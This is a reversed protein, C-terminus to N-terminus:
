SRCFYPRFAFYVQFFFNDRIDDREGQYLKIEIQTQNDESTTFYQKSSCPIISDKNLLKCMLNNITEIGISLPLSETLILCNGGQLKRNLCTAGLSVGIDKLNLTYSNLHDNIKLTHDKIEKNYYSKLLQKIWPNYCSGGILLVTDIDDIKILNEHCKNLLNIIREKFITDLINFYEKINLIIQFDYYREVISFNSDVHKDYLWGLKIKIKEIIFKYSENKSEILEKFHPYKNDIYNGLEIDIDIGGLNNDGVNVDIQSILENDICNCTVIAIDLTGAGFDFVLLRQLIDEQNDIPVINTNFYHIYSLAASCPEYLLRICEINIQSCYSLIKNKQGENFNAPITIIVNFDTGITSIILSKLKNLLLCMLNSLYYKTEDIIIILDDETDELFWNNFKAIKIADNNNASLGILRKLNSIIPIDYINNKSIENGVLVGNNLIGIISSIKYNNDEDTIIFPRGINDQYTICCKDTGLDLGLTIKNSNM